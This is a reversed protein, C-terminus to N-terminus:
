LKEVDGGWEVLIAGASGNTISTVGSDTGGNLNKSYSSAAGVTYAITKIGTVDIVKTTIFGSAGSGIKWGMGTVSGGAGATGKTTGNIDVLPVSAGGKATSSKIGVDLSSYLNTGNNKGTSVTSTNVTIDTKYTDFRSGHVISNTVSYSFSCATAGSATVTSFTTANGVPGTVTYNGAPVIYGKKNQNTGEAYRDAFAGAGGGVCTVRLKTVGSPVTFTGSTTYYGSGYAPTGNEAIAYTTGGKTARGVTARTDSTSVLPIYGTSGDANAYMYNNGAEGTTSYINAAQQTGASNRMYLKKAFKAM